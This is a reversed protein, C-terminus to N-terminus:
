MLSRGNVTMICKWHEQEITDSKHHKSLLMVSDVDDPDQAVMSPRLLLSEPGSVFPCNETLIVLLIAKTLIYAVIVKM